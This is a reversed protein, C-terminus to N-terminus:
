AWAQKYGVFLGKGVLVGGRLVGDLMGMGGCVGMPMWGLYCHRRMGLTRVWHVGNRVSVGGKLVRM